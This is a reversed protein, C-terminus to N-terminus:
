ESTSRNGARFARIADLFDRSPQRLSERVAELKGAMQKVTDTALGTDTVRGADDFGKHSQLIGKASEYDPRARRIAEAFADLATQLSAVDKGQSEAADIREQATNLRQQAHNFMFGLRNMARQQRLWVRELREGRQDTTPPTAPDSFGQAAVIGAPQLILAAAVLAGMLAYLLRGITSIRM